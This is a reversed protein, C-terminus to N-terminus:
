HPSHAFANPLHSWFCGCLSGTSRSCGLPVPNVGYGGGAGGGLRSWAREGVKFTRGEILCHM